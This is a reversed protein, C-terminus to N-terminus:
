RSVSMSSLFDCVEARDVSRRLPPLSALIAQRYRATALRRDLVAVVGTDTTTRILRGVGQALMRAARPLDVAEFGSRGDAEAAERRAQTLPEDPRGFPLKDIVVLRLADGPVDVGQWFAMTAFLCAQETHAFDALLQARSTGDQVLVPWDWRDKLAGAAADLMRYSTFLALTRGGAAEVLAALEGVAADAFGDDRPDPLGAPCYLMGQARYDFPSAVHLERHGGVERLGLARATPRLSGGVSLTASTLVATRKSFLLEDLLPGADIPAVRLTLTDTEEVWAVDGPRPAALAGLENALADAAQLVRLRRSEATGTVDLKRLTAMVGGVVQSATTVATALAGDGPDARQGAVPALAREFASALRDLAEVEAADRVLVSRLQGALWSFRGPGVSLGLVASATEELTHAEDIVVADHDGLLAGDLALDLCYLHTNVIVLDAAQARERAREAFCAEGQPCRAAGPCENPGVTLAQWLLSPLEVPLDDREGATAGGAWEVLAPIARRRSSSPVLELQHDRGGDAAAETLRAMCLYNSRGKLVAAEFPAGLHAHLFPIDKGVIQDQLAKTATTVVVRKGSLVAPVLYALSKGVGTGAEVVLHREDAFAQAVAECMERQGPRDEGAALHAVVKDLSEAAADVTSHVTTEAPSTM